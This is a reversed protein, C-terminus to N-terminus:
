GAAGNRATSVRAQAADSTLERYADSGVRRAVRSESSRLREAVRVAERNLDANRKGILRLAWNVATNM